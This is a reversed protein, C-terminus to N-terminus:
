VYGDIKDPARCTRSILPKDIHECRKHKKEHHGHLCVRQEVLDPLGIGIVDKGKIKVQRGPRKESHGPDTVNGGDHENRDACPKKDDLRLHDFTLTRQLRHFSILVSATASRPNTASKMKISRRTGTPMAIPRM